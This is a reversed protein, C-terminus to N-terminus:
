GGGGARARQLAGAIDPRATLFDRLIAAAQAPDEDYPAALTVVASSPMAGALGAQLLLLKARLPSATVHGGIWYWQWVLRRAPGSVVRSAPVSDPVMDSANAIGSAMPETSLRQWTEEDAVRNVSSVAKAGQRERAFFALDLHVWRAGNRYLAILERDAGVVV